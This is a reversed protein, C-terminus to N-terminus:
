EEGEETSFGSGEGETQEEYNVGDGNIDYGLLEESIECWMNTGYMSNAINCFNQRQRLSDALVLSVNNANVQNESEM